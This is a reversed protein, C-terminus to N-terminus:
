NYSIEAGLVHMRRLLEQSTAESYHKDAVKETHRALEAATEKGLSERAWQAFSSRGDKYKLDKLSLDLRQAIEKLNGNLTNPMLTPLPVTLSDLFAAAPVLLPTWTEVTKRQTKQRVLRIGRAMRGTVPDPALVFFKDPEQAVRCYDVYSLGTYCSVLFMIAAPHLRPILGAWGARLREIEALSLHRKEAEYTACLFNYDRIASTTTWGEHAAEDLAQQLCGIYARITSVKYKEAIMWRELRRVWEVTVASLLLAKAHKAGLYTDLLTRVSHIVGFTNVQMGKSQKMQELLEFAHLLRRANIPRGRLLDRIDAPSPNEGQTRLVDYAKDAQVLLSALRKNYRDLLQQEEKSLGPEVQLRKNEKCWASQTAKVGTAFEARDFGDIEIRLSIPALGSVPNERNARRWLYLDMRYEYSLLM